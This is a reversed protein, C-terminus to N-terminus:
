DTSKGQAGILISGDPMVRSHCDACSAAGFEALGKKRIVYQVFPSIDDKGFLDGSRTVVDSEAGPLNPSLDVPYHFVLDDARVWDQETKLRSVDFVIEPERDRLWKIYGAPEKGPRYRPYTRYIPRVPIRYYYESSIHTPSYRVDALPVELRAMAADDWRRPVVPRFSGTTAQARIRHIAIAACLPALIIFLAIYKRARM